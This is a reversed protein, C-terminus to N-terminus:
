FGYIFFFIIFFLSLFVFIIRGRKKSAERRYQEVDSNEINSGM